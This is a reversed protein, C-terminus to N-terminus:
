CKTDESDIKDEVLDLVRRKSYWLGSYVSTNGKDWEVIYRKYGFPRESFVRVDGYNMELLRM